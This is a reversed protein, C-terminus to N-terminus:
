RSRCPPPWSSRGIPWRATRCIPWRRRSRSSAPSSVCGAARRPVFMQVDGPLTMMNGQCLVPIGVLGLIAGGVRSVFMQLPSAIASYLAVPLPVMFILFALAFGYRRLAPSGALLAVLGALGLLFSLDGVFMIPVVSTLLRGLLAGILLLAGLIAGGRLPVPGM